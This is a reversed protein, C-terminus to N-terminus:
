PDYSSNFSFVFCCVTLWLCNIMFIVEERSQSQNLFGIKWENVQWTTIPCKYSNNSLKNNFIKNNPLEILWDCEFNCKLEVLWMWLQVHLKFWAIVVDFLKRRRKWDKLTFKGKREYSPEERRPLQIKKIILQYYSKTDNLETQLLERSLCIPSRSRPRGIKNDSTHNCAWNSEM